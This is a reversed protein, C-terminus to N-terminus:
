CHGVLKDSQKVLGKLKQLDTLFLPKGVKDQSKPSRINACTAACRLMPFTSSKCKFDLQSLCTMFEEGLFLSAGLLKQVAQLFHLLPFDEGGGFNKAFTAIAPLYSLPCSSSCMKVAQDLSGLSKYHFAVNLAVEIETPTQGIGHDTNLSHQAITAALPM